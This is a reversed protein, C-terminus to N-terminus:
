RRVIQYCTEESGRVAASPTELRGMPSCRGENCKVKKSVQAQTKSYIAAEKRKKKNLTDMTHM